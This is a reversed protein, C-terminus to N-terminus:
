SERCRFRLLECPVGGAPPRSTALPDNMEDLPLVCSEMAGLPVFASSSSGFAALRARMSDKWFRLLAEFNGLPSMSAASLPPPDTKPRNLRRKLCGVRGDRCTDSGHAHFYLEVGTRLFNVQTVSSLKMRSTLRLQVWTLMAFVGYCAGSATVSM